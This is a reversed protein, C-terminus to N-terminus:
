LSYRFGINYRAGQQGAAYVQLESRAYTRFTSNTLNIGEVYVTLSDNISYTINGDVQDYERTYSPQGENGTFFTDRWNYALRTQLGFKDYFLVLNATDSLGQLAPQAEASSNDYEASGNSITANAIFGFGTDWFNHQWAFEVGDITEVRDSNFATANTIVLPEDRGPVGYIIGAAADVGPENAFNALIYNRIDTDTGGGLAVVAAERLPGIGPHVLNEDYVVGPTESGSIWNAVEKEFYGVSIYSAEDYYYELSIDFNDAEYPLLGPDGTFVDIEDIQGQALPVYLPVTPIDTLVGFSARAITQSASARFVLDDTLEIDFDLSPLTHDYNGTTGTSRTKDGQLVIFENGGVWAIGEYTPLLTFSNVETEEYRVGGRINYPLDFMYGSYSLQLYAADTDEYFENEGNNPNSQPCFANGCDGNLVPTNGFIQDYYLPNSPNLSNLYMVRDILDGVDAMFFDLNVEDGGGLEDFVGSLSAPVIIDAISGYATSENSSWKDRQVLSAASYNEVETRALGFDLRLNENFDFSGKLQAQNLDMDAWNNEFKTGSVAMDDASLPDELQVTLIPVERTFDTTAM